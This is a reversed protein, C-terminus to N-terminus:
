SIEISILELEKGSVLFPSVNHCHPCNYNFDATEFEMDCDSCRCVAAVMEIELTSDAALTNQKLADFAFQLSESTVGSLKGVRLKLRHIRTAGALSTKQKAIQLISEMIGIEHM